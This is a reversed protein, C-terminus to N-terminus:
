LLEVGKKTDQKKKRLAVIVSKEDKTLRKKMAMSKKTPKHYFSYINKGFM